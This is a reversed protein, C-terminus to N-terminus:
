TRMVVYCLNPYPHPRDAGGRVSVISLYGHTVVWCLSEDSLADGGVGDSCRIFQICM